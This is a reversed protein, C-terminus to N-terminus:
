SRHIVSPLCSRSAKAVEVLARHCLCARQGAAPRRAAAAANGPGTRGDHETERAHSGGPAAATVLLGAPCASYRIANQPRYASFSMGHCSGAGARATLRGAAHYLGRRDDWGGVVAHAGSGLGAARAAPAHAPALCDRRDGHPARCLRDNDVPDVSGRARDHSRGWCWSVLSPLYTRLHRTGRPCTRVYMDALPRVTARVTSAASEYIMM